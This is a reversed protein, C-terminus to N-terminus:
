TNRSCQYKTPKNALFTREIEHAITNKTHKLLVTLASSSLIFYCSSFKRCSHIQQIRNNVISHFTIQQSFFVLIVKRIVWYIDIKRERYIYIKLYLSIALFLSLSLSFQQDKSKIRSLYRPEFIRREEVRAVHRKTLDFPQSYTTFSPPPPFFVLRWSLSRSKGHACTGNYNLFRTRKGRAKNHM